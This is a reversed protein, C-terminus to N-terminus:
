ECRPERRTGFSTPRNRSGGFRATRVSSGISSRTPNATRSPQEHHRKSMTATKRTSWRFSRRSRATSSATRFGSSAAPRRRGSSGTMPASAPSGAEPTASKKRRKSFPKARSSLRRLDNGTRLTSSCETSSKATPRATGTLNVSALVWLDSGDRRRFAIELNSVSGDRRLAAVVEARRGSDAYRDVISTGILDARSSFGLLSAASENCDEIRGELTNRVVGYLNREFLLRHREESERLALEAKKRETIDRAVSAVGAVSGGADIVPFVAVTVDLTTGDKRRRKTEYREVGGRRLNEIARTVEGKHGSPELVDLSSGRTEAATYGYMREAGHNWSVVRGALDTCIIADNSSEVIAALLRNEEEARRRARRQGAQQLEREVAPILRQLKEKPLFDHAGAKLADVASEEGVTGSVIIFPLDFGMRKMLALAEPASFRPMSYDAVILDWQRGELAQRMARATEVREWQVEYDARVFERVVLELDDESDEIILVRLVSM